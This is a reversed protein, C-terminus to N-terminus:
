IANPTGQIQIKIAKFYIYSSSSKTRTSNKKSQVTLKDQDLRIKASSSNINMVEIEIYESSEPDYIKIKNGSISYKLNEELNGNVDFFKNDETFIFIEDKFDSENFWDQNNFSFETLEWGGILDKKDFSSGEEGDKTCSVTTFLVAMMLTALKIFRKM